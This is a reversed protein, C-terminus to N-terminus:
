SAPEKECLEFKPRFVDFILGQLQRFLHRYTIYLRNYSIDERISLEDPQWFPYFFQAWM